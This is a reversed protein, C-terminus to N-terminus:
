RDRSRGEDTRWRSKRKGRVLRVVVGRCGCGELEVVQGVLARAQDWLGDFVAVVWEPLEGGAIASTASTAPSSAREPGTAPPPAPEESVENEDDDRVKGDPGAQECCRDGVRDRRDKEDARHQDRGESSNRYKKRARRLREREAEIACAGPCYLQNSQHRRCHLFAEGCSQCRRFGVQAACM